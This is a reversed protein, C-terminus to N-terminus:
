KPKEVIILGVWEARFNRLKDITNETFVEHTCKEKGAKPIHNLIQISELCLDMDFQKPHLHGYKKYAGTKTTLLGWKRGQLM